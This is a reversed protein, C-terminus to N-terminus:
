KVTLRSEVKKVGKVSEAMKIANKIQAENDVTGSLHVIGNNTEVSVPMTAVDEDSFLDEQMFLGKVKATIYADDMPHQSEKVTLKETDVDRVGDVSEVLQVLAEADTESDVTGSLVVVGDNVTSVENSFVSLNKDAAIKAKVQFTIAADSVPTKEAYATASFMFLTSFIATALFNNKKM